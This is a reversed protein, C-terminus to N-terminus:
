ARVSARRRAAQEAGPQRIMLFRGTDAGIRWVGEIEDGDGNLMGDYRVAHSWGGTGDYTKTFGVVGGDRRGDILAYLTDASAHGYSHPEHTTGTLLDGTQLLNAVFGEVAGAPYVYLGRWVGTLNTATDSPAESM